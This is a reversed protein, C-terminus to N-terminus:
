YYQFARIAKYYDLKALIFELRSNLYLSEAQKLQSEADNVELSSGVGETYKIRSINYVKNALTKNKEQSELRSQANHLATLSQRTTLWSQNVLTEMDTNIKQIEMKYKKIQNSKRFSDFIPISLQLGAAGIQFDFTANNDWQWNWSYNGFAYLNPLFGVKYRRMNLTEITRQTELVQYELTQTPNFQSEVDEPITSAEFEDLDDSLELTSDMSMGMQFKLLNVSVPVLRQAQELESRLNNLNIEIRDVDIKEAFGEEFLAKTEDYLQETRDLNAELQILREESVLAMYYARSVDYIVQERNRQSQIKTLEKLTQAAKLGLFFQGDFVLQSLTLGASAQWPLGFPISQLEGNEGPLVFVPLEFNNQIDAAGEIQPLGNALAVNIDRQAISEDMFSKVMNPNNELGYDICARVGMTRNQAEIESHPLMFLLSMALLGMLFNRPPSTPQQIPKM